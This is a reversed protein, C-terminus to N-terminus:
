LNKLNQYELVSIENINNEKRPNKFFMKTKINDNKYLIKEMLDVTTRKREEKIFAVNRSISYQELIMKEWLLNLQSSYMLQVASIHFITWLQMNENPISIEHATSYIIHDM